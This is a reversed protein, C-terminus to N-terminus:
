LKLAFNYNKFEFMDVDLVAKEYEQLRMKARKPDKMYVGIILSHIM